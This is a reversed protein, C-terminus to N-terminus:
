EVHMSFLLYLWATTQRQNGGHSRAATCHYGSLLQACWFQHLCYLENHRTLLRCRTQSGANCLSALSPSHLARGSQFIDTVITPLCHRISVTDNRRSHFGLHFAMVNNTKARGMRSAVLYDPGISRSPMCQMDKMHSLTKGPNLDLVNQITSDITLGQGPVSSPRHM